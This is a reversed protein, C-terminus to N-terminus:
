ISALVPFFEFVEWEHLNINEEVVALYMYHVILGNNKYYLMVCLANKMVM